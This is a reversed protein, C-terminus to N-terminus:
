LARHSGKTQEYVKKEKKSEREGILDLVLKAPTVLKSVKLINM